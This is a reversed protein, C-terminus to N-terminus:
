RRQKYLNPDTVIEFHDFDKIKTFDGGWVIMFDSDKANDYLAEYFKKDFIADGKDDILFLDLAHSCPVGNIMINHKSFPWHARSKGDLFAREQDQEGRWGCSIHLEQPYGMIITKAKAWKFFLALEPHVQELVKDCHICDEGSNHLPSM